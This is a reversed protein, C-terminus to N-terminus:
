EEEEPLRRRSVDYLGAAGRTGVEAGKSLARKALKMKRPDRLFGRAGQRALGFAGISSSIGAPTLGGALNMGLVAALYPILDRGVKTKAASELASVGAEAGKGLLPGAGAAGATVDPDESGHLASVAAASGAEGTTRGLLSAIKNLMQMQRATSANPILKVLQRVAALRSPSAPIFFEGVQAATKGLEEAGTSAKLEDPPRSFAASPDTGQPGVAKALADTLQGLLPTKHVLNGLDFATEGAQKAVGKGFGALSGLVSGGEEEEPPPPEGNAQPPSPVSGPPGAPVLPRGGRQARLARLEDGIQGTPM